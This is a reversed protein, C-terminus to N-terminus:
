NGIVYLEINNFKDKEKKAYGISDPHNVLYLCYVCFKDCSLIKDPCDHSQEKSLIIVEM